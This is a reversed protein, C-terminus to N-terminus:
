CGCGKSDSSDEKDSNKKDSCLKAFQTIEKEAVDKAYGYREQLKGMLEQKKGKILIMDDDTLKGWTQRIKGKLQEWNGEIENWDM